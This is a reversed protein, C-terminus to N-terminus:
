VSFYKLIPKANNYGTMMPKANNYGTMMCKVQKKFNDM